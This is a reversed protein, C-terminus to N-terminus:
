SDLHTSRSPRRDRGQEGGKGMEVEGGEWGNLAFVAAWLRLLEARVRGCFSKEKDRRPGDRDRFERM